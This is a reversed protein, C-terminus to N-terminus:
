CSLSRHHAVTGGSLRWNISMIFLFCSFRVKRTALLFSLAPVLVSSPHRHYKSSRRRYHDCNRQYCLESQMSIHQASALSPNPFSSSLCIVLAALLSCGLFELMLHPSSINLLVINRSDCFEVYVFARHFLSVAQAGSVESALVSCLILVRFAVYRTSLLPRLLIPLWANAIIPSPKIIDV